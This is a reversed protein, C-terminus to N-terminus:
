HGFCLGYHESHYIFVCKFAGVVGAVQPPVPLETLLDSFQLRGSLFKETRIDVLGYIGSLTYNIVVVSRTFNIM